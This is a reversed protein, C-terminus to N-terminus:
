AGASRAATVDCFFRELFGMLFPLSLDTVGSGIVKVGLVRKLDRGLFIGGM